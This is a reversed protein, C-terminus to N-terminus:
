YFTTCIFANKTVGKIFQMGDRDIRECKASQDVEAMSNEGDMKRRVRKLM